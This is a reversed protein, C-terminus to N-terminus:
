MDSRSFLVIGALTYDLPMHRYDACRTLIEVSVATSKVLAASLVGDYILYMAPKQRSFGPMEIAQGSTLCGSLELPEFAAVM